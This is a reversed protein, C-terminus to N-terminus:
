RRGRGRRGGLLFGGGGFSLAAVIAIVMFVTSPMPSSGRAANMATAFQMTAEDQDAPFSASWATGIQADVQDPDAGYNRVQQRIAALPYGATLAVTDLFGRGLRSFNDTFSEWSIGTLGLAKGPNTFINSVGRDTSRSRFYYPIKRAM